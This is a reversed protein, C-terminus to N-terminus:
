EFKDFFELFILIRESAEVFQRLLGNLNSTEKSKLCTQEKLYSKAEIIMERDCSIILFNLADYRPASYGCRIVM